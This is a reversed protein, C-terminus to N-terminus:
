KKLIRLSENEVLYPDLEVKNERIPIQNILNFLIEGAIYGLDYGNHNITALRPNALRSLITDDYGIIQVQDPIKIHNRQLYNSLTLAHIDNCAIITDYEKNNSDIFNVLDLAANFDYAKSEFIDYKIDHSKFVDIIGNKRNVAISISEPGTNILVKKPNRNLLTQAIIKGGMYDNFYVAYEFDEQNRDVGVIPCTLSEINSIPITSVIGAINNIILSDVHSRLDDLKAVNSIILQYGSEQCRIELGNIISASFLNDIGPVLFGILKSTKKYLSRAVENPIYNLEEIAKSIKEKSKEGVYGNGNIFRSVTAVSLGSREAVDKITTSM